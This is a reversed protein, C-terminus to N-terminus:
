EAASPRRLMDVNSARPESRPRPAPRALGTLYCSYYAWLLALAPGVLLWANNQSYRMGMRLDSGWTPDAIDPVLNLFHFIVLLLLAEGGIRALSLIREALLRRRNLLYLATPLLGLVLALEMSWPAPHIVLFILFVVLFTPVVHYIALCTRIWPWLWRPIYRKLYVLISGLSGAVIMILWSRPLESRFGGLTRSLVDRGLFDTGLIYRYSERLLQDDSHIESPDYPSLQPTWIAIALLLLVGLIGQYRRKNPVSSPPILSCLVAPGSAAIWTPAQGRRKAGWDLWLRLVLYLILTCLIFGQLMPIDRRKLAAIGMRGLGPIALIQELLFLEFLMSALLPRFRRCFHAMSSRFRVPRDPGPPPSVTAWVACPVLALLIAPVAMYVPNFLYYPVFAPLHAMNLWGFRWLLLDRILIVAVFNPLLMIWFGGAAYWDPQRRQPPRRWRNLLQSFGIWVSIVLLTWCILICTQVMARQADSWVSRHYFRSDGWQGSAMRYLWTGYQEPLSRDLGYFAILRKQRQGDEDFGGYLTLPSDQMLYPLGFVVLTAVLCGLLKDRWYQVHSM